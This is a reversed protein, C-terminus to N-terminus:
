AHKKQTTLKHVEFQQLKLIFVLYFLIDFYGIHKFSHWWLQWPMVFVLLNIGPDLWWLQWPM